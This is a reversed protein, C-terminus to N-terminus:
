FYKFPGHFITSAPKLSPYGHFERPYGQFEWSYGDRLSSLVKNEMSIGLFIGLFIGINTLPKLARVLMLINMPIYVSFFFFIAASAPNLSPYEQSKWSYGTSIRRKPLSAGNEKRKEMSIRLFIRVNALVRLMMRWHIKHWESFLLVTTCLVSYM